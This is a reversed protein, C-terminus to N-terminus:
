GNEEGVKVTTKDSFKKPWRFNLKSPLSILGSPLYLICLIVVIGYILLHIGPVVNGFTLRLYETLPVLIFAGLTPGYIKGSGGVVAVVAIMLSIPFGGVSHPDIYRYYQAYFVGGVAALSASIWAAKLLTGVVSVGAASAADEDERVAALFYRLRELGLTIAIAAGWLILVWIFYYHREDFQLVSLATRQYPLSIGLSGGTFGRSATIIDRVIEALAVSALAFYPGRIGFRFSPYGIVTVLLVAIMAGVIMGLWPSIGLKTFLLISTYAGVAIFAAHGLSLRGGFGSMLNWATGLFAYFLTLIIVHMYYDPMPVFYLLGVAIFLAIPKIKGKIM